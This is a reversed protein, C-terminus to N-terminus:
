ARKVEAPLFSKAEESYYLLKEYEEEKELPILPVILPRLGFTQRIVELAPLFLEEVLPRDALLFNEFLIGHRLFLALYSPYFDKAKGGRRKVWDSVDAYRRYEPIIEKALRHHFEVLSGGWVTRLHAICKGEAANLNLIKQPWVKEGGRKGQGGYFHLNGLYYKDPNESRFIDETYELCWDELAVEAALKRFAFFAYNPTLINRALIAKAGRQFVEPIDGELFQEVKKRLVADKRRKALEKKARGPTWYIEENFFRQQKQKTKEM